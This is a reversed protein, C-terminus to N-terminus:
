TGLDRNALPTRRIWKDRRRAWAEGNISSVPLGSREAPYTRVGIKPRSAERGQNIEQFDVDGVLKRKGRPGYRDSMGKSACLRRGQGRMTLLFDRFMFVM